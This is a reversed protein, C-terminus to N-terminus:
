LPGLHFIVEDAGTLTLLRELKDAVTQPGGVVAAALKTQVLFREQESWLADMSEVPPVTFITNGTDSEIRTASPQHCPTTCRSRYRSCSGPRRYDRLARASVALAPLERSLAAPRRIVAAACLSQRFCVATRFSCSAPRQLHEIWAAMGPDATGEGSFAHVKQGPLASGLYALLEQVQQPFDDESSLGRKVARATTQDSGPARGIGLDIRGPYLSELTGFHEAVILPSHNPLMIGGAGVRLTSTGGAVYGIVVSTAASAIGPMNHHEALWFRTYGWKEVHQALELSSRLAESITGGAKM